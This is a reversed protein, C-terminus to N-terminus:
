APEEFRPVDSLAHVAAEFARGRAEFGSFMDFSSCGPSLTVAEGADAVEAAWGVASELSEHPVVRLRGAAEAVFREQVEGIVAVARAHECLTEILPGLDLGKDVGGVIAVLPGGVSRLGVQAAHVNTAKSDDFYRVGGRERVLALRHPLGRFGAMAAEFSAADVRAGLLRRAGLWAGLANRRNHAGPVRLADRRAREEGEATRLVLADGDLWADLADLEAGDAYYSVRAGQREAARAMQSLRLDHAFFLADDGAGLLAHVHHKAAVYDDASAYHDLHDLAVNTLLAVDPHFGHGSWLQFASVEVVAAEAVTRGEARAAEAEALVVESMATWSNGGLLVRAGSANGIAHAMAATTSKGDTGGISLVRGPFAQCALVVESIVPRRSAYLAALDPKARNEPWEPNLSPSLVLADVDGVDHSGWAVDVADPLDVDRPQGGDRAVVSKGLAVLLRCAARGSAGLGLVAVRQLGRLPDRLGLESLLM